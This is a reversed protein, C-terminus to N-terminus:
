VAQGDVNFRGNTSLYHFDVAQVLADSEPHTVATSLFGLGRYAAGKSDEYILRVAGFDRGESVYRM